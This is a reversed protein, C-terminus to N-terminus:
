FGALEIPDGQKDTLSMVAFNSLAAIAVLL